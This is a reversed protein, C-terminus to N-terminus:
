QHLSRRACPKEGLAKTRAYESASDEDAGIASIQVFNTIGAEAACKAVLGAGEAQLSQFNQKGSEGPHGGSQGRRPRRRRRARVSDENRLNAQVLQVQGVVGMPKLEHALHPRRTAARVRYGAKALERVVYRGIFGSAGFVTIMENRLTM